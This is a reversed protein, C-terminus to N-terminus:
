ANKATIKLSPLPDPFYEETNGFRMDVFETSPRIPIFAVADGSHFKTLWEYLHLRLDQIYVLFGELVMVSINGVVIIPLSGAGGSLWANNVLAMLASHVILLIGLRSYSITNALFEVPKFAADFVGQYLRARISPKSSFPPSTSTLSAVARGFAVTLLSAIIVPLSIKAAVSSPITLGVYSFLPLAADSAFIGEYINSFGAGLVSLAFIISSVYMALTAFHNMFAEAFQRKRLANIMALAYGLALHAIGISVAISLVTTVANINIISGEFLRLSPLSLFHRIGYHALDFGFLSGELLGIVSASIGFAMLMRGWYRWTRKGKKAVIGGFAALLIGHGLDPFMIGYFLPFLFAIIPTPDIERYNPIGQAVTIDEFIKMFKPNTLLTPVAPAKRGYENNKPVPEISHWWKSFRERFLRESSRPIYGEITAVYKLNHKVKIRGLVNSLHASMERMALLSVLDHRNLKIRCDLKASIRDRERRIMNLVSTLNYSKVEVKEAVGNSDLFSYSPKLKSIIDDLNSRLGFFESKLKALETEEHGSPDGSPHFERFEYLQVILEELEGKAALITM